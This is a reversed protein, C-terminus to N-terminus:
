FAKSIKKFESQSFGLESEAQEIQSKLKENQIEFEDQQVQIKQTLIMITTKLRENEVLLENANSSKPEYRQSARQIVIMKRSSATSLRKDSHQSMQVDSIVIPESEQKSLPLESLRSRSSKMKTPQPVSSAEIPTQVSCFRENLQAPSNEFKQM